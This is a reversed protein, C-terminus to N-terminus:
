KQSEHQAIIRSIDQVIRNIFVVNSNEDFEALATVNVSFPTGDPKKLHLVRNKVFRNKWLEELLELRADPENFVDIVPVERLDSISHYWLFNLLTTNGWVFRGRLDGTSTRM